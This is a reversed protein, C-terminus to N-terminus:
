KVVTGSAILRDRKKQLKGLVLPDTEVSLEDLVSRLETAKQPDLGYKDMLDKVADSWAPQPFPVRAAVLDGVKEWGVPRPAQAWMDFMERYATRRDEVTYTGGDRVMDYYAHAVDKTAESAGTHFQLEWTLGDPTQVEVNIGRYGRTGQWSNEVNILTQGKSQLADLIDLVAESYTAEPLLATYRLADGMQYEEPTIGRALSKDHIKTTARAMTKLRYPLGFMEGGAQETMTKLLDTIGPEANRAKALVEKAVKESRVRRDPISDTRDIQPREFTLARSKIGEAREKSAQLREQHEALRVKPDAAPVYSLANRAGRLVKEMVQRVDDATVESDYPDDELNKAIRELADLYREAERRDRKGYPVKVAYIADRTDSVLYSEHKFASIFANNLSNETEFIVYDATLDAPNEQNVRLPTVADIHALPIKSNTKWYGDSDKYWGDAPDRVIRVVRGEAGVGAPLYWSPDSASAVTGEYDALNMRGDSQMFETKSIQQWDEESVARYLYTPTDPDPATVPMPFDQEVPYTHVNGREDTWDMHAPVGVPPRKPYRIRIEGDKGAAYAGLDAIAIEGRKKATKYADDRSESVDVIDLWIEGTNDDVWGGLYVGDTSLAEWNTDVYAELRQEFDPANTPFHQGLGTRAVAFGDQQFVDQSVDATFGGAKASDILQQLFSSPVREPLVDSAYDAKWRKLAMKYQGRGNVPTYYVYESDVRTVRCFAKPAVGGRPVAGAEWLPEPMRHHRFLHGVKPTGTAQTKATASPLVVKKSARLKGTVKDKIIPTGIPAGYFKAGEPTRVRRIPGSFKLM